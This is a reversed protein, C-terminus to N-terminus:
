KSLIYQAREDEPDIKVRRAIGLLGLVKQSTVSPPISPVRRMTEEKIMQEMYSKVSVGNNLAQVQLAELVPMELDILKRKRVTRPIM